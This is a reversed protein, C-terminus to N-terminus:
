AIVRNNFSFTFFSIYRFSFTFFWYYLILFYIAVILVSAVIIKKLDKVSSSRWASRYISLKIFIFGHLIIILPLFDIISSRYEDSIQFDFRLLFAFFWAIISILIDHVIILILKIYSTSLKM